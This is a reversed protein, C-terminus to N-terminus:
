HRSGGRVVDGNSAPLFLLPLQPFQHGEFEWLEPALGTKGAFSVRKSLKNNAIRGTSPTMRCTSLCGKHRLVDKIGFSM